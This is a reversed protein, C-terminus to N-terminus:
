GFIINLLGEVYRSGSRCGGSKPIPVWKPRQAKAYINFNAWRTGNGKKNKMAEILRKKATKADVQKTVPHLRKKLPTFKM